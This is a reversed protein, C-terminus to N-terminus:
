RGSHGPQQASGSPSTRGPMRWPVTDVLVMVRGESIANTMGYGISEM